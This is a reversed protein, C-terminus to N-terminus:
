FGCRSEVSMTMPFFCDYEPISHCRIGEDCSIAPVHYEWQSIMIDDFISKKVLFYPLHVFFGQFVDFFYTNGSLM